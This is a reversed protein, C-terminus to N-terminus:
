KIEYTATVFKKVELLEPSVKFGSSKMGKGYFNASRGLSVIGFGQSQEFNQISMVRTIEVGSQKALKKASEKADTLAILDAVRSISDLKSHTFSFNQFESIKTALLEETLNEFQSIDSLTVEIIQSAQYGNFISKSNSYIYDKNTAIQSTRVQYPEKIYKLCILEVQGIVENVQNVSRKLNSNTFSSKISFEVQNPVVRIKGEGLVKITRNEPIPKEHYCSVILISSLLTLLIKM